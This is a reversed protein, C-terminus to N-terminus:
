GGEQIQKLLEHLDISSLDVREHDIKWDNAAAHAIFRPDLRLHYNKLYYLHFGHWYWHGDTLIMGANIYRDGHSYEGPVISGIRTPPSLIDVTLEGGGMAEIVVGCFLYERLREENPDPQESVFDEISPLHQRTKRFMIPLERFSLISTLNTMTTSFGRFTLALHM